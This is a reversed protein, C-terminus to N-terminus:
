ESAHGNLAPDPAAIVMEAEAEAEAKVAEPKEAPKGNSEGPKDGDPPEKPETPDPMTGSEIMTQSAEVKAETEGPTPTGFYVDEADDEPPRIGAISCAQKRKALGSSFAQVGRTMLSESDEKFAKVESLDPKIVVDDALDFEPGLRDRKTEAILAVMPLIGDEWAAERAEGYNAYTRTNDSSALGLALSNLGMAALINCEPRSLVRDLAMEEPTLGIKIPDAAVLTARVRGANEGRTDDELKRRESELVREDPTGEMIYERPVLVFSPASNRLIAATYSDGANVGAIGRSQRKLRGLGMVPNLVDIGDKFHIVDAPDYSYGGAANANATRGPTYQYDVIRGGLTRVLMWSNPVWYLERVLGSGDRAMIWYANGDVKIADSTAGYVQRWTQYPNPRTNFLVQLPEDDDGEFEGDVEKGVRFKVQPVQDRLWGLGISVVSNSALDGALRAYDLQAGPAPPTLGRGSSWTNGLWNGVPVAPASASVRPRTFRGGYGDDGRYDFAAKVGARLRGWLSPV